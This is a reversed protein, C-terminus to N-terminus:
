APKESRVDRFHQFALLLVGSLILVSGFIMMETLPEHLIRQSLFLGFITQLCVFGGVLSPKVRQLAWMNLFYTLATAGLLLFGLGSWFSLPLDSIHGSLTL